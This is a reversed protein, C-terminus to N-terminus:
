IGEAPMAVNSSNVYIRSLACSLRVEFEAHEIFIAIHEYEIPIVELSYFLHSGTKIKIKKFKSRM